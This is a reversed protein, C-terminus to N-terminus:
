IPKDLIELKQPDPIPPPLSGRPQSLTRSPTVPPPAKGKPTAPQTTKDDARQPRDINKIYRSGDGRKGFTYIEASWGPPPLLLALVVFWRLQM